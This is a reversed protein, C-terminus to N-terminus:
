IGPNSHSQRHSWDWSLRFIQSIRPYDWSQEKLISLIAGPNGPNPPADESHCAREPRPPGEATKSRFVVGARFLPLDCTQIYTRWTFVITKSACNSRMKIKSQHDASRREQLGSAEVTPVDNAHVDYM